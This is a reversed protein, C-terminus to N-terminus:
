VYAKFYAKLKKVKTFIFQNREPRRLVTNCANFVCFAYSSVVIIAEDQDKNLNEIRSKLEECVSNQESIKDNLEQNM